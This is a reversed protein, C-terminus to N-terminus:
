ALSRIRDATSEVELIKVGYNGEVMVVEGRAIPKDNVFIAVPDNIAKELEIVSGIGLKVIDRLPMQAEGFSVVVELEVDLILDINWKGRQKGGGGNSGPPVADSPQASTEVSKAATAYQPLQVRLSAVLGPLVWLQLQCDAHGEISIKLNLVFADAYSDALPLLAEGKGDTNVPEPASTQISLGHSGAFSKGTAELARTIFRLCAELVESELPKDEPCDRGSLLGGIRALDPNGLLLLASGSIGAVFRIKMGTVLAASSLVSRLSSKQIGTCAATTKGSLSARAVESFGAAVAHAFPELVRDDDNLSHPISHKM